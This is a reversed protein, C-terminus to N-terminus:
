RALWTLGMLATWDPGEGAVPFAVGVDLVLTRSVACSFAALAQVTGKGGRRAQGSFELTAGWDEAIDRSLGAAWGLQDRGGGGGAMGLRTYTLNLDGHYAGFDFSYIGNLSYDRHGSGLGDSATALKAGLELGLAREDALPRRWKLVLTSDGMGRQRSAGHVAQSAVAETGLLIGFDESFAYKFLLPLGSRSEEGGTKQWGAELELYGPAPLAAPSSVSPRYPTATPESALAAGALGATFWAAALQKM